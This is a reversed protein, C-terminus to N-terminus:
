DSLNWNINIVYMEYITRNQEAWHKKNVAFGDFPLPLESPKQIAVPAKIYWKFSEQMSHFCFLSIVTM